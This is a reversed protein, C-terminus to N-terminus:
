RLFNQHALLDINLTYTQNPTDVRMFAMMSPLGLSHKKAIQDLDLYTNMWDYLLTQSELNVLYIIQQIHTRSDWNGTDQVLYANAIAREVTVVQFKTTRNEIDVNIHEGPSPFFGYHQRPAIVWGHEDDNRISVSFVPKTLETFPSFEADIINGSAYSYYYLIDPNVNTLDISENDIQWDRCFIQWDLMPLKVQHKGCEPQGVDNRRFFDCNKCEPYVSESM